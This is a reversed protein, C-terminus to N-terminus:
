VRVDLVAGLGDQKPLTQLLQQNQEIAQDMVKRMVATGMEASIELNKMQMASQAIGSSIGDVGM